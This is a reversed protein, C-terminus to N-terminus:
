NNLINDILSEIYDENENTLVEGKTMIYYFVSRHKRWFVKSYDKFYSQMQEDFDGQAKLSVKHQICNWLWKAYIPIPSSYRCCRELMANESRVFVFIPKIFKYGLGTDSHEGNHTAYIICDFNNKELYERLLETNVVLNMTALMRHNELLLNVKSKLIDISHLIPELITAFIKSIIQAIGLHVEEKVKEIIEDKM